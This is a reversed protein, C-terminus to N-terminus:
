ADCSRANHSITRSAGPLRGSRDLLRIVPWVVFTIVSRLRSRRQRRGRVAVPAGLAGSGVLSRERVIQDALAGLMETHM